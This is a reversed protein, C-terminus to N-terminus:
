PAGGPTDSPTGGPIGFGADRLVTAGDSSTLLDVWAAALGPEDAEALVAVPYRTESSAPVPLARVRDGAAVVDSRYVLGADAEGLLVKALVAKVDVEESAPLRDVGGADLAEQALAGCPASAVCVVYDVGDDDLGAFGDPIDPGREAPVVLALRNTAFVAPDGAAAGADTVVRMTREDATALVDGPAGQRVQEGLTASSDFALRVTAGPHEAEFRGALATFPETLSAAALVTLEGELDPGGAGGTSGGGPSGGAGEGTGDGSGGAGGCGAVALLVGALVVGVAGRDWGM